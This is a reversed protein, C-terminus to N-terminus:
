AEKELWPPCPVLWDRVTARLDSVAGSGLPSRAAAEVRLAFLLLKGADRPKHPLQGPDEGFLVALLALDLEVIPDLGRGLALAERRAISLSTQVDVGCLARGLHAHFYKSDAAIAEEFMAAAGLQDGLLLRVFGARTRPHKNQAVAHSARDLDMGASHEEGQEIRIDFHRSADELRGQYLAIEALRSTANALLKRSERTAERGLLDSARQQAVLFFWDATEIEGNRLALEGVYIIFRLGTLRTPDKPVAPGDAGTRRSTHVLRELVALDDPFESAMRLMLQHAGEPDRLEILARARKLNRDKAREAAKSVRTWEGASVDNGLIRKAEAPRADHAACMALNSRAQGRAVQTPADRELISWLKKSRVLSSRTFALRALGGLWYAAVERELPDKAALAREAKDIPLAEVDLDANPADFRLADYAMELQLKLNADKTRRRLTALVRDAPGAESLEKWGELKRVSPRKVLAVIASRLGPSSVHARLLFRVLALSGDEPSLWAALAVAAADVELRHFTSLDDRDLSSLADLLRTAIQKPDINSWTRTVLTRMLFSAVQTDLTGPTEFLEPFTRWLLSAIEKEGGPSSACLV